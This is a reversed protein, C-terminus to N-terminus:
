KATYWDPFSNSTLNNKSQQPILVKRTARTEINLEYFVGPGMDIKSYLIRKGDPSFCVGGKGGWGNGILKTKETKFDYVYIDRLTQYGSVVFVVQKGDQSFRAVEAQEKLLLIEKGKRDMVYTNFYPNNAERQAFLIRKGDSSVDISKLYTGKDLVLLENRSGSNIDYIALHYIYGYRTKESEIVALKKGKPFWAFEKPEFQTKVDKLSRGNEDFISIQLDLGYISTSICAIKKGDASWRPFMGNDTLLKIKQNKYIKVGYGQSGLTTMYVVKGDVGAAPNVPMYTNFASTAMATIVLAIITLYIRKM